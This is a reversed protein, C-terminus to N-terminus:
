WPGACLSNASRVARRIGVSGACSHRRPEGSLSPRGYLPAGPAPPVFGGQVVLGLQGGALSFVKQDFSQTSGRQGLSTVFYVPSGHETTALQNIQARAAIAASLAIALRHRM